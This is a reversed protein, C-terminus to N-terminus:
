YINVLRDQKNSQSNFQPRCLSLNRGRLRNAIFSNPRVRSIGVIVEWGGGVVIDSPGIFNGLSFRTSDRKGNRM